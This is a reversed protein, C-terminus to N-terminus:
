VRGSEPERSFSIARCQLFTKLNALVASEALEFDIKVTKYDQQRSYALLKELLLTKGMKQPAKIRILAGPQAIARYCNEEIPPRDVYVALNKGKLSIDSFENAIRELAVRFNRKKLKEGFAESLLKWFKPAADGRIYDPSYGASDAIEEYSQGNWAGELVIKDVDSLHKGMKRFVLADAVSFVEEFNM